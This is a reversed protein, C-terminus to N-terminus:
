FVKFFVKGVIDNKFNIAGIERSDASNNRNDGMCWLCGKKVTVKWDDDYMREKIYTENIKKGNRYMQGNKCAIVDGQKGIVRKIIQEEGDGFNAKAVVVDGYKVNSYNYFKKNVLVINGDKYTPNMSDGVVRSIQVFYLVAYTLVVTVLIVKVYEIVTEKLSMKKEEKKAKNENIEEM